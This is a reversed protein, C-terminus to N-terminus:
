TVNEYGIYFITESKRCSLYNWRYTKPRKFDSTSWLDRSHDETLTLLLVCCAWFPLATVKGFLPLCSHATVYLSLQRLPLPFRHCLLQNLAANQELSSQERHTHCSGKRHAGHCCRAPTVQPSFAGAVNGERPSSYHLVLTTVRNGHWSGM